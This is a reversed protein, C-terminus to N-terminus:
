KDEKNDNRDDYNSVIALSLSISLILILFFYWVNM